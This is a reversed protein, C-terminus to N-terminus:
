KGRLLEAAHRALMLNENTPIVNVMVRCDPPSITRANKRNTTDDIEIGLYDLGLCILARVEAAHEGIGGTFVLRDVGGIAASLSGIWRRASYAFVGVARAATADTNVSPLLERMDSRDRSMGALGCHHFIMDTVRIRDGDCADLMFLLVGPDLDGPRTAMVIGGLPTFGMTTDVPSGDRLAVMSAGSGLHAVITRGRAEDALTQVIYEYSIGHFGYRQLMPDLERPVPLARAVAPMRRHFATDFSVTQPTAPLARAVADIADLEVQLHLPDYATLARLQQLLEPTVLAPAKQDSGGFVIRHAVADLAHEQAARLAADVAMAGADARSPTDRSEEFVVRESHSGIEFLTSKLSSSGANLALVHLTKGLASRAGPAGKQRL